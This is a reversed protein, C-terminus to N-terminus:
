GTVVQFLGVAYLGVFIIHLLDDALFPQIYNHLALSLVDLVGAIIMLVTGIRLIRNQNTISFFFINMTLILLFIAVFYSHLSIDQDFISLVIYLISFLILISGSLVMFFRYNYKSINM